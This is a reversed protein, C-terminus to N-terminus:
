REERKPFLDPNSRIYSYMCGTSRKAYKALAPVSSGNAWMERMHDIDENTPRFAPKRPPFEQRHNALYYQLSTRQVGLERAMAKVSAGKAFMREITEREEATPDFAINRRKPVVERYVRLVQYVRATSYHVEDAIDAISSGFRYMNLIKAKEEPTM